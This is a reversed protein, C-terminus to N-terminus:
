PLQIRLRLFRRPGQPDIPLHRTVTETGVQPSNGLVEGPLLLPTADTWGTATTSSEVRYDLGHADTRRRFQFALCPTGNVHVPEAVPLGDRIPSFPDMAFAFKLLNSIGDGVPSAAPAGTGGPSMEGLLFREAQWRTFSNASPGPVHIGVPLLGSHLGTTPGQGAPLSLSSIVTGHTLEHIELRGLGTPLFNPLMTGWRGPQGAAETLYFGAYLSPDAAVGTAEVPTAALPRGGVDSEAYLVVMSMPSAGASGFVATGQGPATGFAMVEVTEAACLAHFTTTGSEGDNLLLIPTLANGPVFRENGTPEALFWGHFAGAADTTFQGHGVNLADPLFSVGATSRVFGSPSPFIMNGAGDSAPSDALARFRNAFRYAANPRLGALSFRAAWPVREDNVPFKGQVYLPVLEGTLAIVRTTNDADGDTLGPSVARLTFEGSVPIVVDDFVVTGNVAPRFITGSIASAPVTALQVLGNFGTALAGNASRAQVIVPGLARGAQGASPAQAVVVRDPAPNGASVQINDVRLEPRADNAGSRYYYKWRLQVLPKHNAAAPLTVPGIIQVHNAVPNRLYEVPQSQNLVDTFVGTDGVRYQLRIGYDRINPVVTGGTWTVQIDQAGSTNLALVAAGVYGSGVDSQPDGTNIFSFGDPGLGKIRSRKDRNYPLNWLQDMEVALGPDPVATSTQYFTMNAPFTGAAANASWENLVYPGNAVLPHAVQFTADTLASWTSGNLVRARVRANANLTAAAGSASGTLSLDFSLDSSRAQNQHIEVAILNSGTVLLNAPISFTHVASEDTGSIGTSAWTTYSVPGAPMNSRAVEVGNLYVVAGDDRVLGLSLQSIQAPNTVTFSKRFYTSSYRNEASPGYSLVTVEDGDGYGLQAPGSSWTGDNYVATHWNAAPLSGRDWYKWTSGFSILNQSIGSWSQAHPAIGGGPLRPDSGDLTFYVTGSTGNFALAYGQSVSGGHQALVPAALSPFMGRSRLQTLLNNTRQPFFGSRISEAATAWNEPTRYGWRACEAVMANQVENMRANLRAVNREPTLAGGTFLHKQIRDALLIKFEPDNEALLAGFISGPGGNGTRDAALAAGVNPSYLYGDSDALWFKFGSGAVRPGACRFENENYGFFWVLMFDILHPVDLKDKISHYSSRNARVAEWLERNPPDPTGPIFTDTGVNDNGRVTVYDEKSGGLYEALFADVMRERMDYMGWYTGNVFLHAFRGHPNISGMELTTDEIFRGSMYFGRAVMDHNGARFELSDFSEKVPFGRDFGNFLPANELKRAGYKASFGLKYSKKAFDTWAGGFREVGCNVQIPTPNGPLFFEVSGEIEVYDDPLNPVSLSVMPLEEFGQLQRTLYTGSAYSSQMNPGSPVHSPFLYSHTIVRPSHFGARRVLARVSKSSSIAIPGTYLISPESGDLSYLLDSDPNPNSLVLSFGATRVGRSESFIPAALWGSFSEALNPGGPTPELYAWAEDETRGYALDEKQGGFTIHDLVAGGGPSSLVVSEGGGSLAFNAHLVGAADPTALNRGSAAIVLYGHAPIVTGDPFVWPDADLPDDSLGYGSVDLPDANPNHIEIWDPADKFGDRFSLRNSAMLESIQPPLAQSNVKVTAYRVFTETASKGVIMYRTSMSPNVSIQGAGAANTQAGVAGIGPFISVERLGDVQWSLTVPQGPTVDTPTAAFSLVGTENAERGYAEVERIRLFWEIANTPSSRIKDEYGVRVYRARIPGPLVLDFMSSGNNTLRRSFISEHNEDYLRLTARSLRYQDLSGDIGIVRVHHLAREQGLDTEWYADVTKDTTQMITAWDGDNAYSAPNITDTLRVMYCTQNLAYNTGSVVPPMTFLRMEALAIRQDGAGNNQGLPLELRLLRGTLNTPLDLSWLEGPVTGSIVQSFLLQNEMGYITLLVHNLIGSYGTGTPALIQVRSLPAQRDLEMEWFSGAANATVAISAPDNDTAATAVTGSSQRVSVIGAPDVLVPPAPHAAGIVANVHDVAFGVSNEFETTFVFYRAPSTYSNSNLNHFVRLSAATSTFASGGVSSIELDYRAALNGWDRGTLRLRYWAGPEITNLGSIPLWVTGDYAAWADNQYRLNLAPANAVIAGSNTSVQLQFQRTTSSQLRIYSDLTFNATGGVQVADFRAGLRTNVGGPLNAFWRSGAAGTGQQISASVTSSWGNAFAGSEFSDNVVTQAAAPLILLSCYLLALWPRLIFSIQSM